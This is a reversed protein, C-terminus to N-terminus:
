RRYAPLLIGTGPPQTPSTLEPNTLDPEMYSNGGGSNGAGSRAGWSGPRYLVQSEAGEEFGKDYGKEYGLKYAQEVIANIQAKSLRCKGDGDKSCPSDQSAAVSVFLLSVSLFVVGGLIHKMTM